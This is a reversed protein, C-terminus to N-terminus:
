ASWEWRGAELELAPSTDSAWREPIVLLARAGKPVEATIRGSDTDWELAFTGRATTQSFSAKTAAPAFGPRMVATRWGVSDAAQALGIADEAIWDHIMGLMFHNQSNEYRAGSAGRWTEALATAGLRIQLGYGPGDDIRIMRDIVDDRGHAHLVRLLAPWSNEGVMLHGGATEIADLLRQVTADVETAPVVELDLALALSAQSGSGWQEAGPGRFGAIFRATVTAAREELEAAGVSDGVTSLLAASTRLLHIWGATAVMSAPTSTDLAVWDGLGFDLLGDVSRAEIHALYRLVADRNEDLVSRDGYELYHAWALHAIAGGWNVDDVFADPDGDWENGSFDTTQPVISPVLGGPHQADRMLDLSDRLHAEVDYSRTLLGVCLHLQEIWGLKERSPCDTFVSYMNGQVARDIITHMTQLIPDDISLAGVPANDARIV